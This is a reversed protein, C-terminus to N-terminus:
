IKLFNVVKNGFQRVAENDVVSGSKPTEPRRFNHCVGKITHCEINNAERPLARYEDQILSPIPPNDVESYAILLPANSKAIVSFIPSQDIEWPEQIKLGFGDKYTTTHANEPYAPPSLLVTKGLNLTQNREAAFVSCYAGMSSGVYNITNVGYKKALQNSM